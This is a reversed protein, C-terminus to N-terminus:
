PEIIDLEAARDPHRELWGAVFPCTPVVALHEDEAYTLATRVLASGVGEGELEDSVVTHVLTLRDPARRYALFADGRAAVYEFRDTERNNTIEPEDDAM